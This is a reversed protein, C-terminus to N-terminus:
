DVENLIMVNVASTLPLALGYVNDKKKTSYILFVIQVPCRSLLSLDSGFDFSLTSSPLPFEFCLWVAIELALAM